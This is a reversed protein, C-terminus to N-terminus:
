IISLIIILLVGILISFLAYELMVRFLFERRESSHRYYGWLFYSVSILLVSFYSLMKNNKFILVFGFGCILLVVLICYQYIALKTKKNM